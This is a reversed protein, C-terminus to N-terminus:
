PTGSPNGQELNGGARITQLIREETIGADILLHTAECPERLAAALIHLPQVKGQHFENRLQEAVDFAREFEPSAPLEGTRPTSRPLIRKLKASLDAAVEPSFFPDHPLAATRPFLVGLPKPEHEMFRKVAPDQYNLDLSDPNQDETVLEAVLANLDVSDAGRQQAERITEIVVKTARMSLNQFMRFDETLCAPLRGM